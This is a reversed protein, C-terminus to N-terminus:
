TIVRLIPYNNDKAIHCTNCHMSEHMCLEHTIICVVLKYEDHTTRCYRAHSDVADYDIYKRLPLGIAM